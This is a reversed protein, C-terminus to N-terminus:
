IIRWNTISKPDEGYQDIYKEFEELIKEYKSKLRNGIEKVKPNQKELIDIVQIAIQYRSTHNRVHMDFPTTTTGEEMYGNINFRSNNRRDFLLQKIASVYGIFNMIVPKDKTFIEEFEEETAGNSYISPPELVLLSSVNVVRVKIFPADQKLIEVSALIEETTYDGIGTLVIDANGEDENGAWKWIAMGKEFQEEIEKGTLLNPREDKGAVIINIKNKVKLCQDLTYLTFNPDPPLFINVIKNKKNLLNNVFGPSQHSYGNHEQRWSLSTLFYNMSSVPKRWPIELSIKLFKAYQNVMSDIIPMFAEYSPFIGHRGTLIYGQLLGQCVHESLIEIVRGDPSIFDDYSKTPYMYCRDTVEFISGLKNSLLEDPSFIRINKTNENQEITDRLYEGSRELGSTHLEGRQEFKFYYNSIDPLILEKRIDGAFAHINKGLRKDGKPCIDLVEEIIKGNQNILEHINYSKLWNEVNKLHMPNTKPDMVPVQHSRFSGEIRKGDLDKIGGMGKPTKMIIMPWRLLVNSKSSRATEQILKIRQYAWDMASYIDADIDTDDAIHVDYGLGNFYNTLESNGMTGLITPTSIKYGNLHLIPLVAGSSIPNIFKNGQWSASLPGTEAEGDGIICAVILDPNDLAAGYAIALSYGLEGGENIVSPLAPDLHSPFGGPWSFGKILWSIGNYDMTLKDFYESLTGEIYLNARNAPSGHGPGTILLINANFENIIRNLHAYILNIGPCTGWHGLLRDKIHSPELPKELLFNDKLYLQAAALYDVIRRYKSISNLKEGYERRTDRVSEPRKTVNTFSKM